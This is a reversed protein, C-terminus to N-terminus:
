LKLIYDFIVNAAEYKTMKDYKTENMEKDIITIVNTDTGFGAGETRPNNVVIMDLNKNRIKEKAYESENETELAFGILKSGNKNKGLYELIDITRSIEITFNDSKSKKIKGKHIEKPKYDAVAASMIIYDNGASVSKVANFMEEATRVDM